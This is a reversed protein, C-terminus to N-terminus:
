EVVKRMYITMHIEAEDGFESTAYSVLADVILDEKELETVLVSSEELTIEHMVLELMNGTISIEQVLANPMVVKEVINLVDTRTVTAVEEEDMRGNSYRDYEAKLENYKAMRANILALEDQVVALEVYAATKKALQDLIAFKAFVGGVVLIIALVICMKKPNISSEHYAFNMTRKNAVAKIKKVPQKSSAVKKAM